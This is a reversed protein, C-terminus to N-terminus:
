QDKNFHVARCSKLVLLMNALRLMISEKFAPNVKEKFTFTIYFNIFLAAHARTQTHVWIKRSQM